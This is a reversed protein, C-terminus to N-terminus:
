NIQNLQVCIEIPNCGIREPERCEPFVYETSCYWCGIDCPVIQSWSFWSSSCLLPHESPISLFHHKSVGSLSPSCGTIFRVFNRDGLTGQTVLFLSKDFRGGFLHGVIDLCDPPNNVHAFCCTALLHSTACASKSFVSVGKSEAIGLILSETDPALHKSKIGDHEVYLGTYVLCTKTEGCIELLAVIFKHTDNRNPIIPRYLLVTNPMTAAIQRYAEQRQSFPTGGEDLGTLTYFVILNPMTSYQSLRNLLPTTIPFKTIISIPGMHQSEKLSDLKSFTDELQSPIFPDGLINNISVPICRLRDALASHPSSLTNM